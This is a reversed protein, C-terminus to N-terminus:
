SVNKLGKKINIKLEENKVINLFSIFENYKDNPNTINLSNAKNNLKATIESFREYFKEYQEKTIINVLLPKLSKIIEIEFESNIFPVGKNENLIRNIKKYLHKRGEKTPYSRVVILKKEKAYNFFENFLKIGLQQGRFEKSVVILSEYIIKDKINFKENIFSNLSNSYKNFMLMGAIQNENHAIIVKKNKLYNYDLYQFDNIQNLFAENYDKDEKTYNSLNNYNMLSNFKYVVNSFFDEKVDVITFKIEKKNLLNLKKSIEKEEFIVKYFSDLKILEEIIKNEDKILSNTTIEKFYSNNNSFPYFKIYDKKFYFKFDDKEVKFNDFLGEFYYSNIIKNILSTYKYNFETLNENNKIIKVNFANEYAKIIDESYKRVYDMKKM